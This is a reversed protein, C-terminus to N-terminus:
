PLLFPNIMNDMIRYYRRMHYYSEIYALKPIYSKRWNYEKLFSELDIPKREIGLSDMLFDNFTEM